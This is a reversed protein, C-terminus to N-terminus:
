APGSATRLRSRASDLAVHLRELLPRPLEIEVPLAMARAALQKRLEGSLLRMHDKTTTVLILDAEVARRLLAGADAEDYPHHDAFAHFEAVHAGLKLLTERFKTPRGLGCFGLVRQGRLRAAVAADPVLAASFGPVAVGLEPPSAGDIALVADVFPLMPALPARLPGAPVCFGNGLGFGGDIVALSFDKVLDPNQLADDLILVSAGIALARQAGLDRRRAVFTPAIAALLLPEDGVDRADHRTRDVQIPGAQRGGYGRSIFAPREGSAILAKAIAIATPTKGAGGATFNGISIVPIPARWGPRSLRALTMRGYLAGIPALLPILPSRADKGWFSPTKM